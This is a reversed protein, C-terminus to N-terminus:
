GAAQIRKLLHHLTKATLYIVQYKGFRLDCRDQVLSATGAKLKHGDVFTGNSSGLDTLQWLNGIPSFEAHRKSVTTHDIALDVAGDRGVIVESRNHQSRVLHLRAQSAAKGSRTRVLTLIDEPEVCETSDLSLSHRGSASDKTPVQLLFPYRCAAKFEDASMAGFRTFDELLEGTPPLQITTTTM